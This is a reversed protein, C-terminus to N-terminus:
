VNPAKRTLERTSIIRTKENRDAHAVILLRGAVSSGITIYRDEEDSHDPDPITVGLTDGFITAAENFDVHHKQLNAQAKIPDWEFEIMVGGAEPRPGVVGSVRFRSM